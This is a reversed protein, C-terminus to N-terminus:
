AEELIASLVRQPAEEHALHGLGPLAVVKTAPLMACLRRAETPRITRDEKGIILQLPTALHPLDRSLQPLDWSAMMGLTGAVHERRAFLRAYLDIGTADLKSGTDNLLREVMSRDAARRAFFSPMGPLKVMLRALPSFIQGAWGGLPLLAGNIAIMRRPNVDGNLCLRAAIAAGASHGIILDPEVDLSGLLSKIGAAMGLISLMAVPAHTSFGQGPLDPAIVTFREALLPMLARWSHTSAGTGHLLLVVPGQGMVQVHWRLGGAQIFRSVEAHPWGSLAGDPPAASQGQMVTLALSTGAGSM